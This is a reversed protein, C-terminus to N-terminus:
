RTGEGARETGRRSPPFPALASSHFERSTGQDLTLEDPIDVHFLRVEIVTEVTSSM